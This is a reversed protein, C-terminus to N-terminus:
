LFIYVNLSKSDIKKEIIKESEFKNNGGTVSELIESMKLDEWSGKFIIDGEELVLIQDAYQAYHVAHTTIIRTRSKMEGCLADEMIRDAVEMDLASLPDDLVLM